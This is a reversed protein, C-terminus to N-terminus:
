ARLLVPFTWIDPVVYSSSFTTLLHGFVTNSLASFIWFDVILLYVVIRAPLYLFSIAMM